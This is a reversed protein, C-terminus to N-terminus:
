FGSYIIGQKEKPPEPPWQAQYGSYVTRDIYEIERPSVVFTAIDMRLNIDVGRADWDFEVSTGERGGLRLPTKGHSDCHERWSMPGEIVHAATVGFLAEHTRLFFATGNRTHVGGEPDRVVWYIPATVSAVFKLLPKGIRRVIAKAEEVTVMHKVAVDPSHEDAAM